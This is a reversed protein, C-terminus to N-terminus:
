KRSGFGRSGRLVRGSARTSVGIKILPPKAQSSSQAQEDNAELGTTGVEDVM